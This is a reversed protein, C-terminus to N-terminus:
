GNALGDLKQLIRVLSLTDRKCYELLAIRIRSIKENDHEHLLEEYASMASTGDSIELDSYNLEPTLVPVIAKLSNSGNLQPHYFFRNKFPIMLDKIRLIIGAVDHSFDPFYWALEKLRAIEFTANFVVINSDGEIIKVLQKIFEPRPDSGADALYEYHVPETHIDRLIHISFQFLIQEYPRTDEYIPIAPMFSEFDMFFLPYRLSDLFGRVKEKDVHIRNNVHSEVQIRQKHNLPYMQPIDEMKLIGQRYLDFKQTKRLRAIDFVSDTPIFQWCHDRFDCKYPELCKIDIDCDPAIDGQLIKSFREVNFQVEEQKSLVLDLLSDIIFLQKIDLDGHRIYAGNLYVIFIDELKVGAKTLAYFQYSLDDINVESISMASKVEYLSWGQKGPILIDTIALLNEILFAGEYIPGGNYAILHKTTQIAKYLDCSKKKYVEIGGIFLQRALLGVQHGTEFRKLLQADAPKKLEPYFRDFYLSKLCRRGKLYSSKSILQKLNIVNM